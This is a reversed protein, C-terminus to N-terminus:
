APHTAPLAKQSHHTMQEHRMKEDDDMMQIYMKKMKEDPSSVPTLQLDVEFILDQSQNDLLQLVPENILLPNNKNINSLDNYFKSTLNAPITWSVKAKSGEPIVLVELAIGNVVEMFRINKQKFTLIDPNIHLKQLFQEKIKRDDVSFDIKAMNELLKQNSEQYYNEGGVYGKSNEYLVVHMSLICFLCTFIFGFKWILPKISLSPDPKKFFHYQNEIQKRKEPSLQSLYNM